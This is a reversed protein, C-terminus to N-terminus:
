KTDQLIHLLRLYHLERAVDGGQKAEARKNELNRALVKREGPALRRVDQEFRYYTEQSVSFAQVRPSQQQMQQLQQMMSM